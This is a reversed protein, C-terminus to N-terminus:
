DYGYAVVWRGLKTMVQAQEEDTLEERWRGAKGSQIHRDNILTVPDEHMVRRLTEIRRAGQGADAVKRMIAAHREPATQAVVTAIEDATVDIQLAKALKGVAGPVDAVLTEYRLELAQGSRRVTDTHAMYIDVARLADELPLDHVRRLSVMADRPDRHNWILVADPRAALAQLVGEDALHAHVLLTAPGSWDRVHRAFEPLHRREQPNYRVVGIGRKGLLALVIAGVLVTGSRPLGGNVILM